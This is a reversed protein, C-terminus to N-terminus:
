LIAHAVKSVFATVPISTENLAEGAVRWVVPSRHEAGIANMPDQLRAVVEGAGNASVIVRYLWAKDGLDALVQCENETIFFDSGNCTTSKVEICREEGPWTSAIDYGAGVDETAIHKIYDKPIPCGCKHLKELEYKLAIVECALGTEANRDLQALLQEASVPRRAVAPTTSGIDLEVPAPTLAPPTVAASSSELVLYADLVRRLDARKLRVLLVRNCPGPKLYPSKGRKLSQIPDCNDPYKEIIQNLPLIDTLRRHDRTLDRLYLSFDRKNFPIVM